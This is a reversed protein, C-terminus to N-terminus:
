LKKVWLNVGHEPKIVLNFIPSHVYRPSITFSFNSLILALVIKLEVIALNQGLCVRPGVGFPMYFFPYKCVGAIGNAFREPNFKYSDSGWIEPDTHLLLVTTWINVGKPVNINGLKMDKLAERAIVPVPPYLRLTEHIVANLLKMKRIMDSDLMSGGCIELVEARVRDQWEQNIALLMLCWSASVTTTEWGAMYVNKCNDVIFRDTEERSLNSNKAGELIMQLLDKEDAAEQREKVVKLILNRIEKELAWAERNSKTPLYRMGPIGVALDKKSSAKLLDKLKLFIKEGKYYNSGFCARSIVDASFSGLGEDVKIDAMGGDREIMSKWSNLLANASETILNVMGKIKEMYLEPAIIKRQHSWFAGNSAVIGQGLLPGLDDLQLSTKGLDLSVCTTFEKVLEPQHLNVIQLNGLSYVFVQGYEKFWQEFFPFTLAACNHTLPPDNNKEISSLSKMIERINGLLFTPPPGNIGQKKLMSRLRNPKAVLGNYLRVVVGLFVIVLFPFAIKKDLQFEM